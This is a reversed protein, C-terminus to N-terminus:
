RTGRLDFRYRIMDLNPVPNQPAAAKTNPPFHNRWVGVVRFGLAILMEHRRLEANGAGIEVINGGQARVYDLAYLLVEKDAGSNIYDQDLALNVVDYFDKRKALLCVCIAKAADKVAVFADCLNLQRMAEPLSPENLMLLDASAMTKDM